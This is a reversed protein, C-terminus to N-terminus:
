NISISEEWKSFLQFRVWCNAICRKAWWLSSIFTYNIQLLFLMISLIQLLAVPILSLFQKNSSHHVIHLQCRVVLMPIANCREYPSCMSIDLIHDYPIKLLLGGSWKSCKCPSAPTDHTPARMNGSGGGFFFKETERKTASVLSQKANFTEYIGKGNVRSSFAYTPSFIVILCAAITLTGVSDVKM